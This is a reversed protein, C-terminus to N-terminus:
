DQGDKKRLALDYGEKDLFSLMEDFLYGNWGDKTMSDGSGNNWFADGHKRVAAYVVEKENREM